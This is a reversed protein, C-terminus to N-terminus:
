AFSSASELKQLEAFSAEFADETREIIDATHATSLSFRNLPKSFVGHEMLLFDLNMRRKRDAAIRSRYDTVAGETFFLDFVTGVGVTRVPFGAARGIEEIRERLRATQALVADFVGPGQLIGLTALGTSVSLPNGNFTGSHFVTAGQRLPSTLELIERRGGVAGIPLGGGLIKGLATLDPQVGYYAQAGGLRVRFGTKVEDFVLVMGLRSTLERLRKIFTPDAPVVGAEMPELIVAGVRDRHATLLAECAEYDNFPLVLTHHAFHEPLGLSAPVPLPEKAPGALNTDPNVSVLVQEHGGHYHGEFKAVMDRGSAALALRLALLTAELGSNTFRLEEISPFLSAVVEALRAELPNQLGFASTGFEKWVRGAAEVVAPHGHGVMLAGFSLLYDVYENGDVDQILAGGARSFTLPYPAYHKINGDVGGPIVRSAREFLRRSEPTRSEYRAVLHADM